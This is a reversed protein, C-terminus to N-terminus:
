GSPRTASMVPSTTAIRGPGAPRGSRRTSAPSQRSASRATSAAPWGGGRGGSGSGSLGRHTSSGHAGPASVGSRSPLGTTMRPVPSVMSSTAMATVLPWCRVTTCATDRCPSSGWTCRPMGAGPLSAMQSGTSDSVVPGTRSVSRSQCTRVAIVLRWLVPLVHEVRQPGM